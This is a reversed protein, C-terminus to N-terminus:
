VVCSSVKIALGTVLRFFKSGGVRAVRTSIALTYVDLYTSISGRNNNRMVVYPVQNHFSRARRTM